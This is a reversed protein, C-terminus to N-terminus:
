RIVEKIVEIKDFLYKEKEILNKNKDLYEKSAFSFLGKQEGYGMAFKKHGKQKSNQLLKDFKFDTWSTITKVYCNPCAFACKGSASLNVSYIDVGPDNIGFTLLACNKCYPCGMESKDCYYIGPHNFTQRYQQRFYNKQFVYNTHSQAYKMMTEEDRFRMYTILVPIGHELGWTVSDIFAQRVEPKAGYVFKVRIARIISIDGKPKVFRDLYPNVCVVAPYPGKLVVFSNSNVFVKGAYDWTKLQEFEEDTYNFNTFSNVRIVKTM